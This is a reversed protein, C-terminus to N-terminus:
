KSLFRDKLLMAGGVLLTLASAATGADIEPALNRTQAFASPAIASLVLALGFTKKTVSLALKKM